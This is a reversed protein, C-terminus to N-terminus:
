ERARAVAAADPGTAVFANVHLMVDSRSRGTRAAGRALNPLTVERLFAPASNTPHTALGAALEGALATMAPGIGALHVPVDPHALPPPKMYDQMRTFRYQEGLYSLPTGDQWCEFIARLSQVYERMRPAPATWPMSYRDVVISKLLPGLGLEFRGGYAARLDWTAVAVIMPSRAFAILGSTRVRLQSTAALATAAVLFGDHVADPVTVGDFGLAEVRRAQEAVDALPLHIDVGTWVEHFMPRVGTPRGILPRHEILVPM